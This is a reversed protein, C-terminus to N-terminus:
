SKMQLSDFLAKLKGDNFLKDRLMTLESVGFPQENAHSGRNLLPVLHLWEEKLSRNEHLTTGTTQIITRLADPLKHFRVLLNLVQGAGPHQNPQRGSEKLHWDRYEESALVQDFHRKLEGEIAKRYCNAISGFDKTGRGVQSHLATWFREANVLNDVTTDLLHAWNEDGLDFKLRKEISDNGIEYLRHVNEIDIESSQQTSAWSKLFFSEFLADPSDVLSQLAVQAAIQVRKFGPYQSGEVLLPGLSSMDAHLRKYAITQTVLFFALCANGLEFWGEAFCARIIEICELFRHRAVRPHREPESIYGPPQFPASRPGDPFPIALLAVAPLEINLALRDRAGTAYLVLSDLEYMGLQSILTPNTRFLSVLSTSLKQVRDRLTKIDFAFVKEVSETNIAQREEASFPLYAGDYDAILSFLRHLAEIPVLPLTSSPWINLIKEKLISNSPVREEEIWIGEPWGKKALFLATVMDLFVCVGHKKTADDSPCYFYLSFLSALVAEFARQPLYPLCGVVGQMPPAGNASGGSWSPSMLLIGFEGLSSRLELLQDLRCENLVVDDFDENGQIKAELNSTETEHGWFLLTFLVFKVVREDTIPRREEEPRDDPVNAYLAKLCDAIYRAPDADGFFDYFIEELGWASEIRWYPNEPSNAHAIFYRDHSTKYKIVSKTYAEINIRTAIDFSDLHGSADNDGKSVILPEIIFQACWDLVENFPCQSEIEKHLDEWCSLVDPIGASLMISESLADLFDSLQKTERFLQIKETITQPLFPIVSM